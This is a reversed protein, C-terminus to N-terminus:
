LRRAVGRGAGNSRKETAKIYAALLRPESHEWALGREVRARGEAGLARRREPDELLEDIRAAFELPDNNHAFVAADGATVRTETLDYSVIPRSLAMYEAIKILTSCDTYPNRPDPALCVDASCIARRVDEDAVFGCFEVHNDLRLESALERLRPLMDGDGLFRAYWDQRQNLLHSLARLAHDVGDQPGMVGVYVLLHERGRALTPDFPVPRFQDLMPGNRVVFVDEPAKRNREVAFRGVSDNTVLAVDAVRFALREFALLARVALGSGGSRCVYLEPTLDHHDFILRAGRRRQGLAALLLFDPPNCAHIVDFPRECALRQLERWIRWMAVAYESVHGLRNLEAPRLQFRHIQVGDIVEDTPPPSDEPWAQPELVTVEWGARRLSLAEYWVRRDSPVCSNEVIILARQQGTAASENRSRLRANSAAATSLRRLSRQLRRATKARTIAALTLTGRSGTHADSM